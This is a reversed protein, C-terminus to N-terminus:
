GHEGLSEVSCLGSACLVLRVVMGSGRKAVANCHASVEKLGRKGASSRPATMLLLRVYRQKSSM